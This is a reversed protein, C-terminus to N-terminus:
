AIYFDCIKSENSRRYKEIKEITIKEGISDWVTDKNTKIEVTEILRVDDVNVMGVTAGKPLEELKKILDEVLM